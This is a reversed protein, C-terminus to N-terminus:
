QVRGVGQRVGRSAAVRGGIGQPDATSARDLDVSEAYHRAVMVDLRHLEEEVAARHVPIVEEHLEELLARLRRVVQLGSLGYQRIETVALALYEDFRRDRIVVTPAHVDDAGNGPALEVAGIVRLVESLQNLVQVATTPNNIAPSLALNAIDVMVRIAFAPDQDVTRESGLAVMGHLEAESRPGPSDGEYVALLPTRAPVFDGIARRMVVVSGHARAWRLLGQYDIAQIAGARASHVVLAPPEPRARPTSRIIGPEAAVAALTYAFERQVYGAMLVAVAVPRLRHLSRDLFILFLLLSAVLLLGAVSVGLNPVFSAEVRRLLAFSFALMGVVTALLGKLVRDRYWLRMYRASFTGTAMQVVLVTVTVVFGTLAAAAGVIASLVASATSSSYQLGAPLHLSKEISPDLSGLVAGVICGLLPALWLSGRVRQRIRFRKAWSM